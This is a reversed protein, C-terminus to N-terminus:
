TKVKRKNKGNISPVRQKPNSPESNKESYKAVSVEMALKMLLSHMESIRYNLYFFALLFFLFGTAMIANVLNETGFFVWVLGFLPPIGSFLGLVAGIIFWILFSRGQIKRKRLLYFDLFIIVISFVVGVLSYREWLTFWRV